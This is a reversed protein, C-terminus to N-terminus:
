LNKQLVHVEANCTSGWNIKLFSKENKQHGQKQSPM